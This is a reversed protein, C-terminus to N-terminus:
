HSEQKLQSVEVSTRESESSQYKAPFYLHYYGCSLTLVFIAILYGQLHVWYM